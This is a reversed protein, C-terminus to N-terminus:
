YTLLCMLFRARAKLDSCISSLWSQGGFLDWIAEWAEPGGSTITANLMSLAEQGEEVVNADLVSPSGMQARSSTSSSRAVCVLPMTEYHGEDESVRELKAKGEGMKREREQRRSLSEAFYDVRPAVLVQLTERPKNWLTLFSDALLHVLFYFAM